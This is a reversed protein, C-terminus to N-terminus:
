LRLLFADTGGTSPMPALGRFRATGSFLGAVFIEGPGTSGGNGADVARAECTGDSSLAELWVIEGVEDIRAVFGDDAGVGTTTQAAGGKKTVRLTGRFRGAVVAGGGASEAPLSVSHIEVDVDSAGGLVIAWDVRLPPEDAPSLRVVFGTAGGATPLTLSGISLDEDFTGVLVRRDEEDIALASVGDAGPGGLVDVGVELSEIPCTATFGTADFRTRLFGIADEHVLEVELDHVGARKPSCYELLYFSNAQDRIRQAIAAFTQELQGANEAPEFRTRGIRELFAEDTEGVLGLTFARTPRLDPASNPPVFTEIARIAEHPQRRGANDSGDTFLVLNARKIEEPASK